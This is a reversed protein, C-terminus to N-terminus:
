EYDEDNDDGFEEDLDDDEWGEEDEDYDAEEEDWDEDEEEWEEEEWDDDEDDGHVHGHELEERTADRLDLVTVSFHLEKGALPHNFDLRINDKDVSAIQADMVEGEDDRLRLGVGPELPIDSPFENRPIVTFAKDDIEGYGQEPQVHVNKSDGVGMGYLASELGPIIQGHGQLFVIPDGGESTDVVEGAVKLTYDLTVVVDKEVISKNKSSNM